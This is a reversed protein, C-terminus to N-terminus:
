TSAWASVDWALQAANLLQIDPIVGTGGDAALDAEIVTLIREAVEQSLFYIGSYPDEDVPGAGRYQEQALYNAAFAIGGINASFTSVRATLIAGESGTMSNYALYFGARDGSLLLSRLFAVEAETIAVKNDNGLAIPPSQM